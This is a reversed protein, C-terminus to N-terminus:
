QLYPIGFKDFKLFFFIGHFIFNETLLPNSPVGGGWGMGRQIQGQKPYKEIFIYM